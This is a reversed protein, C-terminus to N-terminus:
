IKQNSNVVRHIRICYHTSKIKMRKFDYEISQNLAKTSAFTIDDVFDAAYKAQQNPYATIGIGVQDFPFCRESRQSSEFSLSNWIFNLLLATRNLSVLLRLTVRFQMFEQGWLRVFIRLHNPSREAPPWNRHNDRSNMFTIVFCEAQIILVWHLYIESIRM